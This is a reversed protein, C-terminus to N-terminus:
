RVPVVGPVTCGHPAVRARLIWKESPTAPPHLVHYTRYFVYPTYLYQSQTCFEKVNLPLIETAWLIIIFIALQREQPQVIEVVLRLVWSTRFGWSCSRTKWARPYPQM